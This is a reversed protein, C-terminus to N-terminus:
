VGLENIFNQIDDKTKRLKSVFRGIEKGDNYALFSPIGIIDLEKCLDIFNDRNILYFKFKPNDDVIDGIFPKLYLCDPCWSASFMIISQNNIIENFQELSDIEILKDM